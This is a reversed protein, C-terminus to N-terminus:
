DDLVITGLMVCVFHALQLRAIIRLRDGHRALYRHIEAFRQRMRRQGLDAAAEAALVVRGHDVRDPLDLLEPLPGRIEVALNVIEQLSEALSESQEPTKW